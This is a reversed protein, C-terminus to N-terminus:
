PSKMVDLLGLLGCGDIDGDCCCCCFPARETPANSRGFRSCVCISDFAKLGGVDDVSVDCM